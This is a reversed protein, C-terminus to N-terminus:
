QQSSGDLDRNGMNQWMGVTQKTFDGSQSPGLSGHSFSHGGAEAFQKLSLFDHKEVHFFPTPIYM